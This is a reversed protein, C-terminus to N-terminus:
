IEQTGKTAEQTKRQILSMNVRYENHGTQSTPNHHHTVPGDNDIYNHIVM